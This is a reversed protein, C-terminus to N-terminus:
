QFSFMYYKVTMNVFDSYDIYYALYGNENLSSNAEVLKSSYSGIMEGKLNYYEYTYRKIPVVGSNDTDLKTVCYANNDFVLEFGVTGEVVDNATRVTYSGVANGKVYITYLVNDLETKTTYFVDRAVIKFSDVNAEKKDFVKNGLFDYIVDGKVIYGYMTEAGTSNYRAVVNCEKDLIVTNGAMDTARFYGDRYYSPIYALDASIELSGKDKGKNNISRIDMSAVGTPVMKNDDIPFTIAINELDEAYYDYEADAVYTNSLSYIVFDFDLDTRKGNEPNIMYTEKVYKNGESIIDYKKAETGLNKIIQVLLNGNEMVFARSLNSLDTDDDYEPVTITTVYNLDKDYYVYAKSNSDVHVYYNATEYSIYNPVPSLGLDRVFTENGDDDVRYLANNKVLLDDSIYNGSLNNVFTSYNNYFNNNKDWDVIEENSISEVSNNGKYINLQYRMEVPANEYVSPAYSASDFGIRMGNEQISNESPNYTYKLTLVSYHGDVLDIFYRTVEYVGEEATTYRTDEYTNILVTPNKADYIKYINNGDDKTETFLLYDSTARTLTAKGFDLEVGSGLIEVDDPDPDVWDLNYISALTADKAFLSCSSLMMALCIIAAVTLILKKKM